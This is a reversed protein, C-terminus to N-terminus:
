KSAALISRPLANWTSRARERCRPWKSLYAARSRRIGAEAYLTNKSRVLEAPYRWMVGVHDPIKIHDIVESVTEIIDKSRRAVKGQREGGHPRAQAAESYAAAACSIRLRAHRENYADEM